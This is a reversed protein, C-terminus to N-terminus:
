VVLATALTCSRDFTRISAGGTTSGVLDSSFIGATWVDEPSLYLNFDLVEFSNRGELIRVKVAKGLNTTNVVSLLTQNGGNVTYYPYVLVQGTGDPNINVANSINAIGAVGALSALVATNLTNKKM